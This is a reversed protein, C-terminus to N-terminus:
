RSKYSSNIAEQTIIQELHTPAHPVHFYIDAACCVRCPTSNVSACMRAYGTARAALMPLETFRMRQANMLSEYVIASAKCLARGSANRDAERLNFAM